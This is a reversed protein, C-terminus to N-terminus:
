NGAKKLEKVEAKLQEVDVKLAEYAKANIVVVEERTAPEKPRTGDIFGLAKYKQWLPRAWESPQEVTKKKVQTVEKGNYYEEALKKLKRMDWVGPCSTYVGPVDRHAILELKGYHKWINAVLQAVTHYDAETAEPRCEIGISQLNYLWDGAHYATDKLDVICAVKGAEVIYHASTECNKNNCFWDIVGEFTQGRAGWHHIIIYKIGQGQRDLSYNRATHATIYHYNEKIPSTM